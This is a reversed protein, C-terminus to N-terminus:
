RIFFHWKESAAITHPINLRQSLWTINRCRIKLFSPYENRLNQYYWFLTSHCTVFTDRLSDAEYFPYRLPIEMNWSSTRLKAPRPIQSKNKPTNSTIAESLSVWILGSWSISFYLDCLWNKLECHFFSDNSPLFLWVPQDTHRRGTPLILNRETLTFNSSYPNPLYSQHNAFQPLRLFGPEHFVIGALYVLFNVKEEPHHRLGPNLLSKEMCPWITFIKSKPLWLTETLLVWSQGQPM